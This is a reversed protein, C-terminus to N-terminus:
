LFAHGYSAFSGHTRVNKPYRPDHLIKLMLRANEVRPLGRLCLVSCEVGASCGHPLTTTAEWAVQPRHKKPEPYLKWFM